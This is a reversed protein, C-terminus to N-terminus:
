LLICQVTMGLSPRALLADLRSKAPHTAHGSDLSRSEVTRFTGAFKPVGSGEVARGGSGCFWRTPCFLATAESLIVSNLTIAM